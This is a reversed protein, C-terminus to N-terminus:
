SSPTKHSRTNAHVLQLINSVITGSEIDQRPKVPTSVDIAPGTRWVMHMKHVRIKIYNHRLWFMTRRFISITEYGLVTKFPESVGLDQLTSGTHAAASLCLRIIDGHNPIISRTSYLGIYAHVYGGWINTHWQFHPSRGIQLWFHILWLFQSPFQSIYYRGTVNSSIQSVRGPTNRM